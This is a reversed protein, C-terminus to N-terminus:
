NTIKPKRKKIFGGHMENVNQETIFATPDIKLIEKKIKFVDLRTIVTFLIDIEEGRKGHNNGKKGRFITAGKGSKILNKRIEESKNSIVMLGTYDEIGHSIFDVTKSAVLYTLISYLATELGLFFAAFSFIVVNIFFIIEGITFGTKRNIYISLVETGDLVSGGRVSFGIGAGLLFGGFISVLLKDSTVIPFHVFVLILSLALIAFFTKIAFVKGIQSKALLIFPLNIIFIAISLSLPTLFSVLLSIGTVGGDIFGNPILFGELGFGALTVGIAILLIEKSLNFAERLSEKKM